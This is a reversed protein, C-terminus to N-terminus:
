LVDETEEIYIESDDWIKGIYYNIEKLNELTLPHKDNYNFKYGNLGRSRAQFLRMAEEVVATFMKPDFRNGRCVHRYDFRKVAM